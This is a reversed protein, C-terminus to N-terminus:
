SADEPQSMADCWADWGNKRIWLVHNRVAGFMAGTCDPVPAAIAEELAKADANGVIPGHAGKRTWEPKANPSADSWALGADLMRRCADEYDGGFGSIERM